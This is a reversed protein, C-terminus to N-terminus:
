GPGAPYGGSDGGNGSDSDGGNGSGGTATGADAGTGAASSGDGARNSQADAGLKEFAVSLERQVTGRQNPNRLRERLVAIASQPDGSRNLAVGLNFLAFYYGLEHTRGAERYGQVSARLPEVAGAYDGQQILQYGRDNLEAPDTPTPAAPKEAAKTSAKPAAGTAKRTREPSGTSRTTSPNGDARQRGGGGDDRRLALGVIGGVLLATIALVAAVPLGRRGRHRPSAPSPSPAPQSAPPDPPSSPPRPQNRRAPTPPTPAVPTLRRARTAPTVEDLTRELEEVLETATAPRAAPDKALGRILVPDVARPLRPEAESALPPRGEAHQLLQAAPPGGEFPRRGSLLEYAVVALAYRDSAPTAPGGTAQEPSLYAATGLVQGTQTMPTDDALRAIGFDAVAVRGRDDLLLNAPKVDRHVIGAAHAVDLGSAADRLWRLATKRDVAAGSDRAARLRDAVTGGSFYEMVIFADDGHEGIDYITVVHPHVSVQAAMRAERQFRARARPDSAFQAGLVKVAVIRGLLLDEVEWVSAMGGSAIHRAIRYREPLEIQSALPM